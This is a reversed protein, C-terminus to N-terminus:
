HVLIITVAKDAINVQMMIGERHFEQPAELLGKLRYRETPAEIRARKAHTMREVSLQDGNCVIVHPHGGGTLPVYKHLRDMIDIVGGTSSPDAEMAGLNFVKSPSSMEKAFPHQSHGAVRKELPKM